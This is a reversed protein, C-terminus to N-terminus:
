IKGKKGLFNRLADLYDFGYELSPEITTGEHWENFSTIWILRQNGKGVKDSTSKAMELSKIFDNKDGLLPKNNRDKLATDDYSPIVCPIFDLKRNEFGDVKLSTVWLRWVIYQTKTILKTFLWLKGFTLKSLVFNYPNYPSVADFSRIKKTEIFPPKITIFDGVLYVDYGNESLNKRADLIGNRYDGNFKHASYIGVVPRGDIKYYSPHSFYNMAIHYLDSIFTKKTNEDDFNCDGLRGLSEYYISFKIDGINKASLLGNQLNEEEFGNPGWWSVSFVDIGYKSAWSIHKEAITSNGSDYEGLIPTNKYGEPWHCHDSGNYWPYYYAGVTFKKSTNYRLLSNLLEDDLSIVKNIVIEKYHIINKVKDKVWLKVKGMFNFFYNKVTEISNRGNKEYSYKLESNIEFSEIGVIYEKYEKPYDTGLIKKFEFSAYEGIKKIDKEDSFEYDSELADAVCKYLSTKINSGENYFILETEVEKCIPEKKNTLVQTYAICSLLIILIGIASFCVRGKKEKM